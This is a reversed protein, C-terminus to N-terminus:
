KLLDIMKRDLLVKDLKAFFKVTTDAYPLFKCSTPYIYPSAYMRNAVWIRTGNSFELEYDDYTFELSELNNTLWIIKDDVEKSCSYNRVWMEPHTIRAYLRKLIRM